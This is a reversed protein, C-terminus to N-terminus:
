ESFVIDLIKSNNTTYTNQLDAVQQQLLYVRVQLAIYSLDKALKQLAIFDVPETDIINVVEVAIADVQNSLIYLTNDGGMAIFLDNIRDDLSKTSNSTADVTVISTTVGDGTQTEVTFTSASVTSVSILLGFLIIFIYKMFSLIGYETIPNCM